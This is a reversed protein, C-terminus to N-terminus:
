AARVPERDPPRAADLDLEAPAPPPPGVGDLELQQQGELEGTDAEDTAVTPEPGRAQDRRRRGPAGEERAPANWRFRLRIGGTLLCAVNVIVGLVVGLLTLVVTWMVSLAAWAGFLTPGDLVYADDSTLNGVFDEAQEVLGSGVGYRWLVLGTLFIMSSVLVAVIFSVVTVSLLGVRTLRRDAQRRTPRTKRRRAM